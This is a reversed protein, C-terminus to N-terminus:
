PYLGEATWRGDTGLRYALREHLRSAGRVWFEVLQPKVCYGSWFPPRPVDAEGFREAYKGIRQLLEERSELPQSQKSAWAGLQSERPRTAFYEDAEADTVPEAVGVIRVQKDLPMWHFCLGAKPNQKLQRSKISELNTYFVFGKEGWGRLLVVRTWPMSEEDVTALTMSYPESITECGVAEELWQEFLGFPDSHIPLPDWSEM